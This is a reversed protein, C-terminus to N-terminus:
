RKAHSTNSTKKEISDVEDPTLGLALGLDRSSWETMVKVVREEEGFKKSLISDPVEDM